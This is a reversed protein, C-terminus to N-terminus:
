GGVLVAKQVSELDNLLWKLKLLEIYLIYLRTRGKTDMMKKATLQPPPSGGGLIEWGRSCHQTTLFDGSDRGPTQM